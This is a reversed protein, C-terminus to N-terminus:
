TFVGALATELSPTVGSFGQTLQTTITQKIQTVSQQANTYSDTVSTMALQLPTRQNTPAPLDAATCVWGQSQPDNGSPQATNSYSAQASIRIETLHIEAVILSLGSSSRRQYDLRDLNYDRYTEDPTTVNVLTLSGLLYELELLFVDRSMNRGGCALRLTLEQPQGVKNYSAFSGQEVPYSAVRQEGRFGLDVVADPTVLANGEDDCLVWQPTDGPLFGFYDIGQLAQTVGTLVGVALPLRDLDPVGAVPPVNPFPILPM